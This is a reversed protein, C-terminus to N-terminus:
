SERPCPSRGSIAWMPPWAGGIGSVSSNWGLTFLTEKGLDTSISFKGNRHSGAGGASTSSEKLYIYVMDGDFVMAAQRLNGGPDKDSVDYKTVADWDSFRGDIVIGGYVAEKEEKVAEGDLVPINNVSVLIASDANDGLGVMFADGTFNAAPIMAEVVYPGPTNQNAENVVKYSGFSKLVWSASTLQAVQFSRTQGRGDIVIMKGTYTYDWESSATGTYCLYINGEEDRALKWGDIQASPSTISDMYKWDSLDGDVVIKGSVAVGGSPRPAATPEPTPGAGPEPTEEPEEGALGMDDSSMSGGGLSMTFDTSHLASLPISLTAEFQSGNVFTVSGDNTVTAWGLTYLNVGDGKVELKYTQSAGDAYRFTLTDAHIYWSDGDFDIVLQDGHRYADFSTIGDSGASHSYGLASGMLLGTAVAAAVLTNRVSRFPKKATKM